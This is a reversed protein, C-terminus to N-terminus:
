LASLVEELLASENLGISRIFVFCVLLHNLNGQSLSFVLLVASRGHMGCALTMM